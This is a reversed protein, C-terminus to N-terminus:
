QSSKDIVEKLNAITKDNLGSSSYVINSNKDIVIHTPYSNVKFHSAVEKSQPIIKYNFKQKDEITGTLNLWRSQSETLYDIEM